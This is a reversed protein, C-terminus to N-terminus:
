VLIARDISNLLLHGHQANVSLSYEIELMIAHQKLIHMYWTASAAAISIMCVEREKERLGGGGEGEQGRLFNLAAAMLIKGDERETIAAALPGTPPPLSTSSTTAAGRSESEKRKSSGNSSDVGAVLFYEVLRNEASM